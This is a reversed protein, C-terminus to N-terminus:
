DAPGPCEVRMGDYAPVIHEPLRSLLDAYDLDQSLNTLIARKPKMRGILELADDLSFHSIHPKDRLADIFLIDLNKLYSMAIDPIDHVDPLYATTGIRYGFANVDGHVVYFPVFTIAGGAGTVTTRSEEEIVTVDLIPPYESGYPTEFCYAFRTHLAQNTAPNAYVQLRKGTAQVLPRLDDIGHIHDAHQHTYFVADLAQINESLLQERLDPGTDVLVRTEGGEGKRTVLISCRRRRNKPNDPDCVAWGIPGVRPVGGSSGCGLVTVTFSAM